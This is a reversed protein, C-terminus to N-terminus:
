HYDSLKPHMKEDLLINDHKLDLHVFGRSHMFGVGELIRKFWFAALTESVSDGSM